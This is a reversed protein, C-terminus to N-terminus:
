STVFLRCQTTWASSMRRINNSKSSPWRSRLAPANCTIKIVEVWRYQHHMTVASCRAPLGGRRAFHAPGSRSGCHRCFARWSGASFRSPSPKADTTAPYPAATCPSPPDKRRVSFFCALLRPSLSSCRRHAKGFYLIGPRSLCVSVLLLHHLYSTAPHLYWEALSSHLGGAPRGVAQALFFVREAGSVTTYQCPSNLSPFLAISFDVAKSM